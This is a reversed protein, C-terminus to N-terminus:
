NQLYYVDFVDASIAADQLVIGTGALIQQYQDGIGGLTVSNFMLIGNRYVQLRADGYTYTSLFPISTGTISTISQYWNLAIGQVFAVFIDSAVAAIFLTISTTTAETYRQDATANSNQTMLLGNRYVQLRNSGMIYTPVSLTTSTVGTQVSVSPNPAAHNLLTFVDTAEAAEALLLSNNNIETYREDVTGIVPDNCLMLGNNFVQLRDTGSNYLSGTPLTLGVQGTLYNRFFPQDLAATGISQPNILRIELTDTTLLDQSLTFTSSQTGVVGIETVDDRLVLAQGNLSVMLGGAGVKYTRQTSGARTDLPLTIPMGATVATATIREQYPRLIAYALDNINATAISIGQTLSDSTTMQHALDTSPLTTYPPNISTDDLAGVFALLNTSIHDDIPISEGASIEGTGPIILAGAENYAIIFSTDTPVFTAIATVQYNTVGTGIDSFARSGSGYNPLQVWLLNGDPISIVASGGTGDQRTLYINNGFGPVRLAAMVDSDSQGTTLNDTISLNTGSWTYRAGAAIPTTITNVFNLLNALSIAGPIGAVGGTQWWFETGKLAKIETMLAAFMDRYTKIDKDAGVYSQYYSDVQATAGNSPLSQALSIVTSSLDPIVGTFNYVQIPTIGGVAVKATSGNSFLVTAGATFETSSSGILNLTTTAETRDWPFNNDLNDATALRFFLERQDQIGVIVNGAAVDIISIKVNNPNLAPNAFGTQNVAVTVMMEMITNVIQTYESGAGGNASPDWFARQLAVGQKAGVILEIYNRGPLLGGVGFGVELTTISVPATWWSVDGTNNGNILTANTIDLTATTPATGILTQAFVFGQLIYSTPALFRSTHYHADARDASLLANWDELDLREGPFNLPFSLIGM